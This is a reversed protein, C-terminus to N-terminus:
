DAEQVITESIPGRDVMESHDSIDDCGVQSNEEAADVGPEHGVRGAMVKGAGAVPEPGRQM